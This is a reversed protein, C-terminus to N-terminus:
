VFSVTRLFFLPKSSFLERNLQMEESFHNNVLFYCIQCYNSVFDFSFTQSYHVRLYSKKKIRDSGAKQTSDSFGQQQQEM